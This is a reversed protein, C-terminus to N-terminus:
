ALVGAGRMKEIDARTFGAETLVADTHQGLSPAPRAPGSPTGSLRVPPAVTRLTAEGIPQGILEAAVTAHAGMEDFALVPEVCVDHGALIRVWEDRERSAFLAAV